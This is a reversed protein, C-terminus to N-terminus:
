RGPVRSSTSRRQFCPLAALIIQDLIRLSVHFGVTRLLEGKLFHGGRQKDVAAVEQPGETVVGPDCRQVIVMPDAAFFGPKQQGPGIPADRLDPLRHAEDGGGMERM